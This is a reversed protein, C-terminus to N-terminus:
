SGREKVIDPPPSIVNKVAISSQQGDAESRRYNTATLLVTRQICDLVNSRHEKHLAISRLSTNEAICLPAKKM